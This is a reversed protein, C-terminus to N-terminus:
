WTSGTDSREDGGENRLWYVTVTHSTTTHETKCTTRELSHPKFAKPENNPQLPQFPLPMGVTISRRSLAKHRPILANHISHLENGYSMVNQLLWCM